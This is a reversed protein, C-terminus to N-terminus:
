RSASAPLGGSPDPVARRRRGAVAAALVAVLAAATLAACVGFVGGYGPALASGAAIIGGSIIAGVRRTNTFLGSAIGPRPIVEQFYTLGVGAVVAFFWANLVQAAILLVPGGVFPVALYYAAGAICGSGILPLSSFRRSLRGLLVLAPVELGASVGLAIGAWLVDLGLSGATFLAMVAVAAANTAQLAVFAAVVLVVTTRSAPGSSPTQASASAASGTGPTGTGASPRGDARRRLAATTLGSAVAVVGVAAVVSQLGWWGILLMALPPGAVWAFSVLARTNMVEGTTAGHARLHAFLLSVGVGAPGGVVALAVVALPLSTAFALVAALVFTLASCWLMPTLYDRRRDAHAPLVLAAVFGSANYVALALGVEADSAGFQGSLVLALAPTLFAFQLGWLLAATPTLLRTLGPM